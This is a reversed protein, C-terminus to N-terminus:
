LPFIESISFIIIKFNNFNGKQKLQEDKDLLENASSSKLFMLKKKVEAEKNIEKLEEVTNNQEENKPNKISEIKEKSFVDNNEPKNDIKNM